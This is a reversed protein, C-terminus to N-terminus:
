GRWRFGMLDAIEERASQGINGNGAIVRLSHAFNNRIFVENVAGNEDETQQIRGRQLTDWIQLSDRFSMNSLSRTEVKDLASISNSFAIDFDESQIGKIFTEFFTNFHRMMNQQFTQALSNMNEWERMQRNFETHVSQPMDSTVIMNPAYSLPLVSMMGFKSSLANEFAQNLEGLQKYLEDEDDKYRELLEERLEAYRRSLTELRFMFSEQTMGGDDPCLPGPVNSARWFHLFFNAERNSEWSAVSLVDGSANKEVDLDRGTIEKFQAARAMFKERLNQCDITRAFDSSSLITNTNM